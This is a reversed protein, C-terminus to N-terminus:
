LTPEVNPLSFIEQMLVKKTLRKLIYLIRSIILLTKVTSDPLKDPWFMWYFTWISYSPQSKHSFICFTFLFCFWCVFLFFCPYIYVDVFLHICNFLPHTWLYSLGSIYSSFIPFLSLSLTDHDFSLSLWPYITSLSNVKSFRGQPSFLVSNAGQKGWISM